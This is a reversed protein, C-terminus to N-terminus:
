VDPVKTTGFTIPQHRRSGGGDSEAVGDRAAFAGGGVHAVVRESFDVGDVDVTRREVGELEHQGIAGSRPRRREVPEGGRRTRQM